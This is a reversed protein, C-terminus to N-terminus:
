KVYISKSYVGFKANKDYFTFLNDEFQTLVLKMNEYGVIEILKNCAKYAEDRTVFLQKHEYCTLGDQEIWLKFLKM